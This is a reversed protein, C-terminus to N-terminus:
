ENMLESFFKRSDTEMFLERQLTSHDRGYGGANNEAALYRGVWFASIVLVEPHRSELQDYPQNIETASALPSREAVADPGVRTVRMKAPF